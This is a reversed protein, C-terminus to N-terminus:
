MRPASMEQDSSSSARPSFYTSPPTVFDISRIKALLPKLKMRSLVKTHGLQEPPYEDCPKQSVACVMVM